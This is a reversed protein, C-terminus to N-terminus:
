GIPVLTWDFPAFKVTLGDLDRGLREAAFAVLAARDGFDRAYLKCLGPLVV